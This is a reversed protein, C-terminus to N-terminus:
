ILREYRRYLMDDPRIDQRHFVYEIQLGFRYENLAFRRLIKMGLIWAGDLRGFYHIGLTEKRKIQIIATTDFRFHVFKKEVVSHRAVLIMKEEVIIKSMVANKSVIVVDCILMPNEFIARRPRGVFDEAVRFNGPLIVIAIAYRHHVGLCVELLTFFAVL